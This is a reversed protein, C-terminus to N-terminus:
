LTEWDDTDALKETTVTEVSAGSAAGEAAEAAWQAEIEEADFGEDEVEDMLKPDEFYRHAWYDTM